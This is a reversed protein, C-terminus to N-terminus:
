AAPQGSFERRPRRREHLLQRERWYRTTLARERNTGHAVLRLVSSRVLRARLWRPGSAFWHRLIYAEGRGEAAARDLVARRTLRDEGVFHLVRADPVFVLRIGASALRLGLLVDEGGCPTGPGLEVQFGGAVRFDAMSLAMNMGIPFPRTPDMAVSPDVFFGALGRSVPRPFVVRVGGVTAGSQGDLVPTVLAVLWGPEPVADDDLFVVVDSDRHRDAGANRAGSANGDKLHVYTVGAAAAVAASVASGNEVVTVRVTWEPPWGSRELGALARALGEARGHTPVVVNVSPV